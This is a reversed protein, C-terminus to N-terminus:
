RLDSVEFPRDLAVHGGLTALPRGGCVLLVRRVEPLNAALTRVLSAVALYEPTSGGHFSQRFSNTLDVTMLGRDDLFVYLVGTDEPLTRVGRQRPGQELESVLYAVRDRLDETEPLERTESVLSEGDPAAFYLRASRFGTSTSDVGSRREPSRRTPEFTRWALWALVALAAM